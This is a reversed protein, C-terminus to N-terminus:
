KADKEVGKNRQNCKEVYESISKESFRLATGIKISNIEGSEAYKYVSSVSINLKKAVDDVKLLCEM